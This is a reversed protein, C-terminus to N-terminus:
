AAARRWLLDLLQESGEKVGFLLNFTPDLTKPKPEVIVRGIQPWTPDLTKSRPEVIVRGIQPWPWKIDESIREWAPKQM